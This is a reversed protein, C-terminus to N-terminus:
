VSGVGDCRRWVEGGCKVVDGGGRCMVVDGGCTM